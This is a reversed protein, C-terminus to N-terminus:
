GRKSPRGRKRKVPQEPAVAAADLKEALEVSLRSRDGDYIWDTSLGPLMRKLRLAEGPPILNIGLEWNNWRTIGLNLRECMESQSLGLVRRILTLRLGVGDETSTDDNRNPM